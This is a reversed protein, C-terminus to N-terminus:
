QEKEKENDITQVEGNAILWACFDSLLTLMALYNVTSWNIDSDRLYKRLMPVVEQDDKPNPLDVKYTLM